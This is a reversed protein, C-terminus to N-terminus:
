RGRSPEPVGGSFNANFAANYDISGSWAGPVTPNGTAFMFTGTGSGQQMLGAGPGGLPDGGLQNTVFAIYQDGATVGIDPSYTYTTLSSTTDKVGSTYLAPGMTESRNWAYVQSVFPFSTDLYAVTLSFDDLRAEPATFVLGYSENGVSSPGWFDVDAAIPTNTVSSAHVSLTSLGAMAGIVAALLERKSV